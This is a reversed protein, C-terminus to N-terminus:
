HFRHVILSRPIQFREGLVWIMEMAWIVLYEIRNTRRTLGNKKLFDLFIANIRDLEEFGQELAFRKLYTLM